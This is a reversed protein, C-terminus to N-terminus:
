DGTEGDGPLETIHRKPMLKGQDQDTIAKAVQIRGSLRIARASEPVM